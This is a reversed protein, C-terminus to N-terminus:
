FSLIFANLYGVDYFAYFISFHWLIVIACRIAFLILVAFLLIFGNRENKHNTPIKNQNSKIRNSGNM